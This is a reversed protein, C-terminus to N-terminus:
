RDPTQRYRSFAKEARRRESDPPENFYGVPLNRPEEPIEKLTLQFLYGDRTIFQPRRRAADLIKGANKKLDSTQLLLVPM